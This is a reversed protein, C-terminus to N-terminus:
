VDRLGYFRRVNEGYIKKQVPASHQKFYERPVEMVDRYSGALLCVPWDSGVMLRDEGFAAWVVDLYPRFDEFKWRSWDAETVLGSIKCFVNPCAALARIQEKWPGFVSARILPKAIHDLVFWQEPYRRAVEVAAPMQKPFVLFDYTLDFARLQEIGRLFEAGLMFRVDPEDQVVHRVGVFKEHGSFEELQQNVAPSRLDVWGVVGKIVPNSGALKLLWRTEELTQRAQVSVAGSFGAEAQERALEGPLYDRRLVQMGERIWPYEKPDYSWFHQHADIKM